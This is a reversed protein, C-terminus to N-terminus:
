HRGPFCETLKKSKTLSSVMETFSLSFVSLHAVIYALPLM